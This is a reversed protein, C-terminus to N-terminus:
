HADYPDDCSNKHMKARKRADWEPKRRMERGGQGAQHSIGKRASLMLFEATWIPHPIGSQARWRGAASLSQFESKESRLLCRRGGDRQANLRICGESNPLSRAAPRWKRRNEHSVTFLCVRAMQLRGATTRPSWHHGDAHMAVNLSHTECYVCLAFAPWVRWVISDMALLSVVVALTCVCKIYSFTLKSFPWRILISPCTRCRAELACIALLDDNSCM